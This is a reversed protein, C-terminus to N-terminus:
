ESVSQYIHVPIGKCLPILEHFRGLEGNEMRVCGHSCPRRREYAEEEALTLGWKGHIGRHTITAGDKLLPTFYPGYVNHGHNASWGKNALKGLVPNVPDSTWGGLTFDGLPTPSADCGLTVTTKFLRQNGTDLLWLTNQTYGIYISKTQNSALNGQLMAQTSGFLPGNATETPKPLVFNTSSNGSPDFKDVPDDGGFVYKHLSLPDNQDGEDDDMQVFRGEDPNYWRARLYVLGTEPETYEGQHGLFMPTSGVHSILNGFADREFTDSVHGTSDMLFRITGTADKGLFSTVWSGSIFQTAYLAGQPGYAYKRTVSGNDLEEVVQPFGSINNNDWLYTTTIGSVANIKEVRLGDGDYVYSIAVGTGQVRTLQNLSNYTYTFGRADNLQNGNADFNFTPSIRDSQDYGGTFTQTGVGTVTSNRTNRNGVNDYAYTVGGNPGLTDGTITENLLRYLDDQGFAVSRGGLEAVSTRNGAPGLVYHYTAVFGGTTVAQVDTLRNLADYGQTVAVGNPLNIQNLNGVGDYHFVTTLSGDVLTAARNLTDFGYSVNTGNSNNSSVSAEQGTAPNVSYDLTGFPSIKRILRNREDYNFSTTGSADTMSQRRLFGDYNYSISGENFSEHTLRDTL